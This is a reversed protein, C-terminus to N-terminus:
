AWTEFAKAIKLRRSTMSQDDFGVEKESANDKRREKDRVMTNSMWIPNISWTCQRLFNSRRLYKESSFGTIGKKTIITNDRFNM